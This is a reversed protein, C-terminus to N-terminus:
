TASDQSLLGGHLVLVKQNIVFGNVAAGLWGLKFWETGDGTGETLGV